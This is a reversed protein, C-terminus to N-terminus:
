KKLAAEVADCVMAVGNWMARETGDDDGFIPGTPIEGRQEAVVSKVAEITQAAEDLMEVQERYRRVAERARDVRALYPFLTEACSFDDRSGDYKAVAEQMEKIAEALREQEMEMKHNIYDKTFM